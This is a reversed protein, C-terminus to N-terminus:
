HTGRPFMRLLNQPLSRTQRVWHAMKEHFPVYVDGEPYEIADAPLPKRPPAYFGMRYCIYSILLVLAALIGLILVTVM